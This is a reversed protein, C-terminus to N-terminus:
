AVPGVLDDNLFFFLHSMSILGGDMGETHDKVGINSVAVCGNRINFDVHSVPSISMALFVDVVYSM